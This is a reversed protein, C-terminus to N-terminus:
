IYTKLGNLGLVPIYLCFYSITSITEESYWKNGLCLKTFLRSYLPGFIPFYLVVMLNLELVSFLINFLSKLDMHKQGDSNESSAKAEPSEPNKLEALLNKTRLNSILKSFTMRCSEEIPYFFIRAVLSCYNNAMAYVGQDYHSSRFSLIIKDSETIFHKLAITGTMSCAAKLYSGGLTEFWSFEVMLDFEKKPLLKPIFINKDNNRTSLYSKSHLILVLTSTFGYAVQACGFAKIGLDFYVVCILTTLTRATLAAMEARLRNRVVGISSYINYWPEGLSELTAGVAYLFVNTRVDSNIGDPQLQLNFYIACSLLLLVIFPFWSINVISQHDNHDCKQRRLISLRIGERSLFLMTSLFLEFPIAAYGFTGPDTVRILVQNLSFTLIKQLLSVLM